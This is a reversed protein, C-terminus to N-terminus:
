ENARVMRGTPISMGWLSVNERGRQDVGFFNMKTEPKAPPKRTENREARDFTIEKPVALEQWSDRTVEETVQGVPM